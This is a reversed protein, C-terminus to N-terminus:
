QVEDILAQYLTMTDENAKRLSASIRKAIRSITRYGLLPYKECLKLFDDRKLMLTKCDTLAIVSASRKDNDILAIEGFFVNQEAELNVVAFREDLPTNRLVQVAGEYLIYLTSGEDKEKIIYDDKSFAQPVLYEAVAELIIRQEHKEL